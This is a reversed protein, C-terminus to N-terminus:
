FSYDFLDESIFLNLVFQGIWRICFSSSVSGNQLNMIMKGRHTLVLCGLIDVAFLILGSVQLLISMCRYVYFLM